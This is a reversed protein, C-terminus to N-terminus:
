RMGDIAALRHDKFLCVTKETSAPVKAAVMSPLAVSRAVFKMGEYSMARGIMWEGPHSLGHGVSAAVMVIPALHSTDQLGLRM